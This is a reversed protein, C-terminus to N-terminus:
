ISLLTYALLIAGMAVLVVGGVLGRAREYGPPGYLLEFVFSSDRNIDEEGTPLKRGYNFLMVGAVVLIVSLFLGYVAM